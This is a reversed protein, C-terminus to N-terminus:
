IKQFVFIVSTLFLTVDFIVSFNQARKFNFSLTPGFWMKSVRIHSLPRERPWWFTQRHKKFLHLYNTPGYLSLYRTNWPFYEVHFQFKWLQDFANHKPIELGVFRNTAGLVAHAKRLLFYFLFRIRYFDKFYISSIKKGVLSKESSSIQRIYIIAFYLVLM